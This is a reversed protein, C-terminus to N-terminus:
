FGQSPRQEDLILQLKVEPGVFGVPKMQKGVSDTGISLKTMNADIVLGLARITQEPTLGLKFISGLSYVIIDLHKDLRDVDAIDTNGSNDAISMLLRSLEKPGDNESFGIDYDEFSNLDFGELAEEIPFASEKEDSYPKDLLGAQKNFDYVQQLQELM